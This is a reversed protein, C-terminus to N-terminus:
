FSSGKLFFESGCPGDVVGTGRVGLWCGHGTGDVVGGGGGGGHRVLGLLAARGVGGVAGRGLGGLRGDVLARKFHAVADLREALVDHALLAGGRRADRDHGAGRGLEEADDGVVHECGLAAHLLVAVLLQEDDTRRQQLYEARHRAGGQQTAM